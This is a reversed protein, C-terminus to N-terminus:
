DPQDRGAALHHPRRHEDDALLKPQAAAQVRTGLPSRRAPPRLCRVLAPVGLLSRRDRGRRLLRAQPGLRLLGLDDAHGHREELREVATRFRRDHFRERQVAPIEGSPRELQRPWGSLPQEEVAVPAAPDGVWECLPNGCAGASLARGARCRLLHGRHSQRGRRDRDEARLQRAAGRLPGHGRSGSDHHVLHVVQGPARLRLGCLLRLAPLRGPGQLTGFHHVDARSAPAPRASQCGARLPRGLEQGAAAADPIWAIAAPRVTGTRGLCRPGM